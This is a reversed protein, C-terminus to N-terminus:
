TSPQLQSSLVCVKWLKLQTVDLGKLRNINKNLIAERLDHVDCDDEVDVRFADRSELIYCYLRFM